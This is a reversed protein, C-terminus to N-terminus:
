ALALLTKALLETVVTRCYDREVIRRGEKGMIARRNEDEYLYILVDLWDKESTAKFGINGKALVEANMGVPSVVVPIGCAMYQLMKFSCKGRSWSDDALPMLGVDMKQVMAAENNESWKVFDLREYPLDFGDPFKDAVVLLRANKAYEFFNKLANSISCLYNFNGSTGTWGVTFSRNEDQQVPFFQNTDVATPIIEINKSFQSFWDALYTNGVVITDARLATYKMQSEGYPPSQWVADDVDLVLPKKLGCEITPLGDYLGRELWVIDHRWSKLVGPLLSAFKGIEVAFFLPLIYPAERLRKGNLLKLATVSKSIVPSYESVNVGYETLPQFHQRFRFRSSPIYRGGTLAAVKIM